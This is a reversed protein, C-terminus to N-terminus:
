GTEPAADVILEIEAKRRRGRGGRQRDFPRTESRVGGQAATGGTGSVAATDSARLHVRAHAVADHFVISRRPTEAATEGSGARPRKREGEPAPRSLSTPQVGCGACQGDAGAGHVVIERLAARATGGEAAAAGVAAADVAM